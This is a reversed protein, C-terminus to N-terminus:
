EKRGKCLVREKEYDTEKTSVVWRKVREYGGYNRQEATDGQEKGSRDTSTM